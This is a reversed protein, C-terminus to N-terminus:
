DCPAKSAECASDLYVDCPLHFWERFRLNPLPASSADDANDRPQHGSTGTRLLDGIYSSYDLNRTDGQYGRYDEGTYDRVYGGEFSNLSYSM